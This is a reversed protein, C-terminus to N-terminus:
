ILKSSSGQFKSSQLDHGVGFGEFVVQRVRAVDALEGVGVGHSLLRVRDAAVSELEREADAATADLGRAEECVAARRREGAAGDERDHEFPHTKFVRRSERPVVDRSMGELM